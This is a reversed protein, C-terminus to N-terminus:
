GGRIRVRDLASLAASRRRGDVFEVYQYDKQLASKASVLLKRSIQINEPELLAFPDESVFRDSLIDVFENRRVALYLEARPALDEALSDFSMIRLDGTELAAIKDRRLANSGFESRRGYVLVIKVAGPDTLQPFSAVPGLTDNVFGLLNRNLFARWNSVQELADKFDSHLDLTSRRFFKKSPREIEVLVLRWRLSGKTIFAFDSVYSSGLPLKRFVLDCWIGHNMVFERPVLQTNREIITQYTQENAEQDLLARYVSGLAKHGDSESGTVVPLTM